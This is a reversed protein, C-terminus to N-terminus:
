RARAPADPLLILILFLLEGREEVVDVVNFSQSRGQQPNFLDRCCSDIALRPLVVNLVELCVELIEGMSELSSGVPGPRHTPNVDLLHAFRAFKTREANRRQFVLDDLTGGDLHQVRDVFLVEPTERVTESRSTTWM